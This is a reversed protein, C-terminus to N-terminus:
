VLTYTLGGTYDEPAFIEIKVLGAFANTADSSQIQIQIDNGSV